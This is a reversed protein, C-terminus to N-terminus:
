ATLTATGKSRVRAELPTQGMTDRSGTIVFGDISDENAAWYWTLVINASGDTNLTHKISNTPPLTPPSIASADRDNRNNFNSMLSGPTVVVTFTTEAWPSQQNPNFSRIRANYSGTELGAISVPSNAHLGGNKWVSDTTLKYQLEFNAVGTMDTPKTWAFDVKGETQFAVSSATFATPPSLVFYSVGLLTRVQPATLANARVGRSNYGVVKFVVESGPPLQVTYENANEINAALTFEAGNVSMYVDAGGYNIIAGPTWQASVNVTSKDAVIIKEYTVMLGDVHSVTMDSVRGVPTPIEVEAPGYVGEHYEMFKLHRKELGNGSIGALVYPKRVMGQEGYIFTTYQAPASPFASAVNVTSTGDGNATVSSVSREVLADTQWFTVSSGGSVGSPTTALAFTDLSVGKTVTVVEYDDSGVTMRHINSVNGADSLSSTPILVMNGVVQSVTKTALQLADYHVLLSYNKGALKQVSRDLKIASTSSGSGTKGDDAWKMMPHQILVVDGISLNIAELFMECQVSRIVLRNSYVARWLETRAQEINDVGVLPITVKRPLENFTVAKQDVYRITKEKNRDNKDYYTVEYENARNAMALYDIQFTGDIVSTSSIAAVPSRARDIAVSIKKGFPVMIAHGIRLVQTVADGANTQQDFVGNFSINNDTCYQAFDVWMPWDIRSPSIMAGREQSLLIDLGIWAPNNSWAKVTPNGNADYQQVVCGKVRATLNPISNLQDNLRIRLCLNATGRLNTADTTIEALDSFFAQDQIYDSTAEATTRAISVEYFGRALKGSEFSRRVAKTSSQTVSVNSVSGASYSRSQSTVVAGDLGEITYGGANDALPLTYTYTVMPTSGNVTAGNTGSYIYGTSATDPVRATETWTSSSTLKYRIRPNKTNDSVIQQPVAVTVSTSGGSAAVSTMGLPYQIEGNFSATPLASWAGTPAKTIPDLPRYQLNFTVSQSNHAGSKSDINVLGNPFVVDFRVFDVEQSTVHSIATQTIKQSKNKQVISRGFWGNGDQTLSGLATFVDVNSFSSIPQENIEIDNVSDILGDNLVTRLYLYQDSGVNETYTDAFNGAVRFEGYVVPFPINETASNKAGDIGYTEAEEKNSTKNMKPKFLMNMILGLAMSVLATIFMSAIAHAAMWKGAAALFAKVPATGLPVMIVGIQDGRKVKKKKAKDLSCEKGNLYFLWEVDQPLDKVYDYLTIGRKWGLEHFEVSGPEFPNYLIRLQVDEYEPIALDPGATFDALTNQLATTVANSMITIDSRPGLNM